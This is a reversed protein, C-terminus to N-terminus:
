SRRRGSSGPEAQLAWVGLTLSHHHIEGGHCAVDTAHLQVVLLAGLESFIRKPSVSVGLPEPPLNASTLLANSREDHILAEESPGPVDVARLYQKLGADMGGDWPISEGTLGEVTDPEVRNLQELATVGRARDKGDVSIIGHPARAKAAVYVVGRAAPLATALDLAPVYSTPRAVSTFAALRRVRFVHVDLRLRLRLRLLFILVRVTAVDGEDAM